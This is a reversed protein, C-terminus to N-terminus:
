ATAKDKRRLRNALSVMWPATCTYEVILCWVVIVVLATIWATASLSPLAILVIAVIIVMAVELHRPYQRIFQTVRGESEPRGFLRVRAQANTPGEVRQLQLESESCAPLRRELEAWSLPEAVAIPKASLEM